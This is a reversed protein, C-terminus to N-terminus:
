RKRGRCHNGAANQHVSAKGHLHVAAPCGRNHVKSESVQGNYAQSIRCHQLFPLRWNPKRFAKIPVLINHHFVKVAEVRRLPPFPVPARPTGLTWQENGVGAHERPSNSRVYSDLLPTRQIKEDSVM